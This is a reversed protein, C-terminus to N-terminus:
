TPFLKDIRKKPKIQALILKFLNLRGLEGAQKTSSSTCGVTIGEALDKLADLFPLLEVLM